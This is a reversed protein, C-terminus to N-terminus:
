WVLWKEPTIEWVNYYQSEKTLDWEYKGMFAALLDESWPPLVERASGECIVPSGGDELALAARPNIRLNRAKVSKPDTGIYIKGTLWVFWVPVLHPLGGPKVSAIWINQQKELKDLANDPPSAAM